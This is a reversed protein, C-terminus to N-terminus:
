WRAAPADVPAGHIGALIQLFYLPLNALGVHLGNALRDLRPLPLRAVAVASARDQDVHALLVLPGLAVDRARAPDRAAEELLADLILDRLAGRLDNEVARASRPGRVGGLRQGLEAVGVHLRHRAPERRPLAGPQLEVPREDHRRVLAQAIRAVGHQGLDTLRPLRLQQLRLHQAEARAPQARRRPEVQRRGADTRDPEDVVVDDVRRVQLPLDQVRGIPHPHGLDIRRADRDGLQVRVHLHDPVLRPELRRVDEVDDLVVVDDDVARVVERRAVQDVVRRQLQALRDISPLM